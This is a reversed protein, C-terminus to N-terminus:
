YKYSLGVGLKHSDFRGTGVLRDDPTNTFFTHDFKGFNSFRYELRTLWNRTIATEVGGGLTYGLLTKGVSENHLVTCWGLTTTCAARLQAEQVALGGTAYWLTNPSLLVGARLRISGDNGAEATLKDSPVITPATGPFGSLTKSSRAFGVDGEIGWVWSGAHWNYGTHLAGNFSRSDAQDSDPQTARILPGNPNNIDALMSTAWKADTYRAGISGGFYFGTWGYARYQRDQYRQANASNVPVVSLATALIAGFLTSLTIRKLM